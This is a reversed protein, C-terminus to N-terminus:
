YFCDYLWTIFLMEDGRVCLQKIVSFFIWEKRKNQRVHKSLFASSFGVM